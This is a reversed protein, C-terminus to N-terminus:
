NTYAGARIVGQASSIDPWALSPFVIISAIKIEIKIHAQYTTATLVALYPPNEM